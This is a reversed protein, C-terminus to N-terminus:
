WTAARASLCGGTRISWIADTLRAARTVIENAAWSTAVLTSSVALEIPENRLGRDHRRVPSGRECQRALTESVNENPENPKTKAKRMRRARRVRSIRARSVNSFKRDCERVPIAWGATPENEM